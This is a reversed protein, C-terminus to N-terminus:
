ILLWQYGGILLWISMTAIVSFIALLITEQRVTRDKETFLMMTIGISWTIIIILALINSM